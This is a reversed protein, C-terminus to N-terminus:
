PIQGLCSGHLYDSDSHIPCLTNDWITDQFTSEDLIAGRLNARTLDAHNFNAFNATINTLNAGTFHASLQATNLSAGSFNAGVMSSSNLNSGDMVANSFDAGDCILADQVNMMWANQFTAGTCEVYRFDPTTFDGMLAGSLRSGTIDWVHPGTLTTRTLNVGSLDAYSMNLIVDDYAIVRGERDNTVLDWVKRWKPDIQPTAPLFIADHLKAWNLNSTTLVTGRLDARVLISEFLIAGDLNAHALNAETFDAGWFNAYRLDLNSLDQYSLDAHPCNTFPGDPLVVPQIIECGALNFTGARRGANDAQPNDIDIGMMEAMARVPDFFLEGPDIDVGMPIGNAALQGLLDEHVAVAAPDGSGELLATVQDSEQGSRDIAVALYSRQAELVPHVIKFDCSLAQNCAPNMDHVPIMEDLVTIKIRDLGTDDEAHISITAVAVGDAGRAIGVDITVSPPADVAAEGVQDQWVPSVTMQCNTDQATLTVLARGPDVLVNGI